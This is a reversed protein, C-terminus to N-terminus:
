IAFAVPKGIALYGMACRLLVMLLATHLHDM